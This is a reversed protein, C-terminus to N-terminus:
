RDDRVDVSGAALDTTLDVIVVAGPAAPVTGKIHVGAYTAPNPDQIDLNNIQIDNAYDGLLVVPTSAVKIGAATNVTNDNIQVGSASSVEVAPGDINIFTNAEVVINSCDYTTTAVGGSLRSHIGVAAGAWSWQNTGGEFTNDIITV